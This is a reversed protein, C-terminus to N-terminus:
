NMKKLNLDIVNQLLIYILDYIFNVFQVSLISLYIMFCTKVSYTGVSWKDIIPLITLIEHDLINRYVLADIIYLHRKDPYSLM